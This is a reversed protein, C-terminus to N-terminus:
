AIGDSLMSQRQKAIWAQVAARMEGRTPYRMAQARRIKAFLDDYIYQCDRPHTFGLAPLATRLVEIPEPRNTTAMDLLM